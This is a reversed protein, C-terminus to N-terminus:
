GKPAWRKLFLVYLLYSVVMINILLILVMIWSFRYLLENLEFPIYIFGSFVALWQAWIKNLWIGVAEAWRVLGVLIVLIAISILQQATFSLLWSFLMQLFPDKAAINKLIPYETWNFAEFNIYAWFLSLGIAIAVSGRLMKLCAITKLSKSM